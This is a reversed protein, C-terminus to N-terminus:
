TNNSFKIYNVTVSGKTDMFYSKDDLDFFFNFLDNAEESINLDTELLYVPLNNLIGQIKKFFMIHKIDSINISLLKNKIYKCQKNYDLCNIQGVYQTIKDM